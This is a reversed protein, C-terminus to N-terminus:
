TKRRFKGPLYKVFFFFLAGILPLMVVGRWLRSRPRLTWAELGMWVVIALAVIACIAIFVMDALFHMGSEHRGLNNFFQSNVIKFDGKVTRQVVFEHFITNEIPTRLDAPRADNLYIFKLRLTVEVNYRNRSLQSEQLPRAARFELYRAEAFERKLSEVIRTKDSSGALLEAADNADGKKFADGLKAFLADLDDLDDDTLDVRQFDAPKVPTEAHAPRAAFCWLATCFMM